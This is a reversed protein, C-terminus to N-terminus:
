SEHVPKIIPPKNLLLWYFGVQKIAEAFNEFEVPKVIYSNAGMRYSDLLDREEQSSTLIIVPMFKTQEMSRIKKLVELGNLKPLKLDLLIAKPLKLVDRGAYKGEGYLYDLAAQGDTIHVINNAIKYEKLSRITLLADNANDEVLLIDVPEIQEIKITM